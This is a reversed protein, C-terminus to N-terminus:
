MVGHNANVIFCAVHDFSVLVRAIELLPSCDSNSVVSNSGSGM